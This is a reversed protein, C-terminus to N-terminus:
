QEAEAGMAKPLPSQVLIGDVARDENFRRVAAAGTREDSM